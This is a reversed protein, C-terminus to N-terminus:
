CKWFRPTQWADPSCQMRPSRQHLHHTGGDREINSHGSKNPLSSCQTPQPPNPPSTYPHPPATDSVGGTRQTDPPEDTEGALVSVSFVVALSSCTEHSSSLIASVVLSIDAAPASTLYPCGICVDTGLAQLRYLAYCVLNVNQVRKPYRRTTMIM